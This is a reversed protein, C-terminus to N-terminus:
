SGVFVLECSIHRQVCEVVEGKGGVSEILIYDSIEDIYSLPGFCESSLINQVYNREEYQLM